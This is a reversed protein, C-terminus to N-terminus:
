LLFTAPLRLGHNRGLIELRAQAEETPMPRYPYNLGMSTVDTQEPQLKSLRLLDKLTAQSICTARRARNLGRLISRQLQRGSWRTRHQPFEGRASRIALLDCCTVLHPIQELLPLYIANAQDCIHIIPPDDSPQAW